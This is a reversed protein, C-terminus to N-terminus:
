AFRQGLPAVAEIMGAIHDGIREELMTAVAPYEEMLRHFLARTIRIVEVDGVAAATPPM